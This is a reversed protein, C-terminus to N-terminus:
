IFFEQSKTADKPSRGRGRPKPFRLLRHASLFAAMGPRHGGLPEVMELYIM